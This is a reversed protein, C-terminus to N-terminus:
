RGNYPYAKFVKELAATWMPKPLFNKFGKMELAITWM